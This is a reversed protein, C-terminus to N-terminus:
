ETKNSLFLIASYVPRSLKSAAEKKKKIRADAKELCNGATEQIPQQTATANTSKIETTHLCVTGRDKIVMRKSSGGDLNLGQVCGLASLLEATGKLTLGIARDLNRGDIAALILEGDSTVGAGMRPLLNRDFTEDQSFTIPPASGCFDEKPLESSCEIVGKETLLVPGGAM